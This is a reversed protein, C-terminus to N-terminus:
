SGNKVGTKSRLITSYTSSFSNEIMESTELVDHNKDFCVMMQGKHESKSGIGILLFKEIDKDLNLPRKMQHSLINNGMEILQYKRGMEVPALFVKKDFFTFINALERMRIDGFGHKVGAIFADNQGLYQKLESETKGSHSLLKRFEKALDILLREQQRIKQREQKELYVSVNSM